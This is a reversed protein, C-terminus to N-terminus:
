SAAKHTRAKHIGLGAATPTTKGCTDCTHGRGRLKALEAELEAIRQRRATDVLHDCYAKLLESAAATFRNALRILRADGTAAAKKAVESMKEPTAAPPAATPPLKPATDMSARLRDASRRLAHESPGYEHLVNLVDAVELQSAHAIEDPTKGTLAQGIVHLAERPTM